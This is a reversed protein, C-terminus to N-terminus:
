QGETSIRSIPDGDQLTRLERYPGTLVEDGLSLGTLVAQYRDDQQGLTVTVKRAFGKDYLFVSFEADDESSMLSGVGDGGSESSSSDRIAEIPVALQENDSPQLIESRTSMGPRLKIDYTDAIRVKVPFVLTSRGPVNRASTAITEVTGKIAVDPFSVAFVRVGQGETVGGIDAEDVEVDTYIVNPDVMVLLPMGQGGAVAMEGVKIDLASILGDVPARIVTKNLLDQVKNLSLEAQVLLQQQMRLDVQALSIQDRNDEVASIQTAQQAYLKGLRGQQVQLSKLRLDSREIEIKRLAISVKQSSLDTEISESDLQVLRQGQIVLDGEKVDVSKVLATVESRVSRSEGYALIGTALVTSEILQSAVFATHVGVATDTDKWRPYMSIAVVVAVLLVLLLAKKM